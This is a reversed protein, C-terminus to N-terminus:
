FFHGFLALLLEPTLFSNGIVKIVPALFHSSFGGFAIRFGDFTDWTDVIDIKMLGPGLAIGFFRLKWGSHAM